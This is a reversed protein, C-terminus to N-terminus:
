KKNLAKHHTPASTGFVTAGIGVLMWFSILRDVIIAAAAIPVPVGFLVYAAIGGAEIVGLNGPLGPLMALILIIAWAFLITDFGIPYGLAFFVFYIRIFDFCKAGISLLFTEAMLREKKLLSRFTREFSVVIRSYNKVHCGFHKTINEIKLVTKKLLNKNLVVFFALSILLASMVVGMMYSFVAVPSRTTLILLAMAAVLMTFFAFLELFTDAAVVASAKATNFGKKRLMYIKLPEGGVQIFPTALDLLAGVLWTKFSTLYSIKKYEAALTKLKEMLCFYSFIQAAIAALLFLGNVGSLVTIVSSFDTTLAIVAFVVVIGVAALFISRM